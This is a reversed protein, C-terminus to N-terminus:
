PADVTDKTKYAWVKTGTKLNLCYVNKDGSGIYVRGNAVAPASVVPGATKFKWALKLTNPLAGNATRLRRNTTQAVPKPAQAALLTQSVILAALASISILVSYRPPTPSFLNM